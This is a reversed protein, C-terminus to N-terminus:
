GARKNKDLAGILAASNTPGLKNFSRIELKQKPVAKEIQKKHDAIPLANIVTESIVTKWRNSFHKAPLVPVATERTEKETRVRLWIQRNVESVLEATSPVFTKNVGDVEGNLFGQVAAQIAYSPKGALVMRYVEATVGSNFIGDDRSKLGAFLLVVAEKIEADTASPLQELIQKLETGSPFLYFRNEQCVVLKNM